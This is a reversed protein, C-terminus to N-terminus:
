EWFDRHMLYKVYPDACIPHLQVTIDHTNVVTKCEDTM